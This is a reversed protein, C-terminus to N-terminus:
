VKPRATYSISCRYSCKGLTGVCVHKCYRHLYGGLSLICSLGVPGAQWLASGLAMQSVGERELGDM